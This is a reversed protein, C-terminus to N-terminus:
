GGQRGEGSPPVASGGPPAGPPTQAVAGDCRKEDSQFAIKQEQLFQKLTFVDQAVNAYIGSVKWDDNQGKGASWVETNVGGLQGCGDVLPGGSNGPALQMDHIVIQSHGGNPVIINNVRGYRLDSGPVATKQRLLAEDVKGGSLSERLQKVFTEFAADSQTVFGPFGAVYATSLKAPTPGLKLAAAKQIPEVELIAFDPNIGEPDPPPETKAVVRAHRIGGLAQSAVFVLQPDAAAIVHHNTVIQRDSIFFGSGQSRTESSLAVVLVTARELLDAVTNAKGNTMPPLAAKDPSPPAIQMRLDDKTGPMGLVPVMEGPARCAREKAALGLARIQAELSENSAKLRNMEFADRAEQDSAAPYVLVGPILLVLLLIAVIACAILPARWPPPAPGNNPVSGRARRPVSPGHPAPALPPAIADHAAGRGEDGVSRGLGFEALRPLFRGFTNEFHAWRAAESPGIGTPLHGWNVLIPEGGIVLIDKVSGINLWARVIPGLRPDELAPQLGTIRRELREVIPRRAIDDFAALESAVGERRGYWSVASPTGEGGRPFVPEAFLNTPERGCREEIEDIIHEYGAIAPEGATEVPTLGSLETSKIFFRNERMAYGFNDILSL